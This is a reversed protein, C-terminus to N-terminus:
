RDVSSALVVIQNSFIDIEDFPLFSSGVMDSIYNKKDEEFIFRVTSGKVYIAEVCARGQKKIGVQRNIL